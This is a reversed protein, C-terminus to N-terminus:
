YDFYRIGQSDTGSWNLRIEKTAPKYIWGYSSPKYPEQPYDESDPVIRPASQGNFPNEPIKPLYHELETLQKAFSLSEPNRSTDNNYYGPAVGNHIAAYREITNRLIRLNDKATSVKAEQSHSQFEPIVVAALIGLIAVVILVEVLTFGKNM